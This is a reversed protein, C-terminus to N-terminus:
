GLWSFVAPLKGDFSPPKERWRAVTATRCWGGDLSLGCAVGLRTAPQLHLLLASMLAANRYPTEIALQTQQLRRSLQDLERIRKGREDANVPLYGVFAFHQGGLGSAALAMLLSSPGSWPEVRIGMAHAQAVLESGPDAVAPLGAESLLGIDHGQTAPSLLAQWQGAAIGPGPHGKAPRPLEQISIAQLPQSLPVLVNVRKLLARASKANEVVWHGLGAARTIAGLPLVDTLPTDQGSGLDLANPMLVLRGLRPVAPYGDIDMM